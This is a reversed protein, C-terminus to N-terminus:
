KMVRIIQMKRVSSCGACLDVEWEAMIFVVSLWNCLWRTKSPFWKHNLSVIGLNSFMATSLRYDAIKHYRTSFMVGDFSSLKGRINDVLSVASNTITVNGKIKASGPLKTEGTPPKDPTNTRVVMISHPNWFQWVIARHAYSSPITSVHCIDLLDPSPPYVIGVSRRVIFWHQKEFPFCVKTCICWSVM